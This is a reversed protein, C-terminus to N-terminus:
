GCDQTAGVLFDDYGDKDVDGAAGVSYGFTDDSGTGTFKYLLRGDRGSYVSVSGPRTLQTAGVILDPYGDRDVDGATSVARGLADNQKAGDLTCIDHQAFLPAVVLSGIALSTVLRM